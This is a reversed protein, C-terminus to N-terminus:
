NLLCIRFIILSIVITKINAKANMAMPAPISCLYSIIESNELFGSSLYTFKDYVIRICFQSLCEFLYLRTRKVSKLVKPKRRRVLRPHGFSPNISGMLHELSSQHGFPHPFLYFSSTPLRFKLKDRFTLPLILLGRGWM